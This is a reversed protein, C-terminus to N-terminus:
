LFVLKDDRPGNLQFGSTFMKKERVSERKSRSLKDVDGPSM